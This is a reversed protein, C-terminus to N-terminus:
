TCDETCTIEVENNYKDYLVVLGCDDPLALAFPRESDIVVSSVHVGNDVEIRSIQSHNMSILAFGKNGYSFRQVGEMIASGSGGYSFHYGFSLGDRKIYISFTYDDLAENYFIMAAIRENVSKSVEWATDINQEARANEEVHNKRVGFSGSIAFVIAILLCASVCLCLIIYKKM